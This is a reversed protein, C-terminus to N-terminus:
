QEDIKPMKFDPDVLPAEAKLRAAEKLIELKIERALTSQIKSTQCKNSNDCKKKFVAVDIGDSRIENSLFKIQIKLHEDITSNNDSFWDTIIIGGSYDVNSLPTFDLLSLSARWMENSTAFEFTGGGKQKGGFLRYGRGEQINKEVRKKVNPDVKRADVPKYIGCGSILFILLSTLLIQLKKSYKKDFIM